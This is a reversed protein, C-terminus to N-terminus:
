IPYYRKASKRHAPNKVVFTDASYQVAVKPYTSNYAARRIEITLTKM